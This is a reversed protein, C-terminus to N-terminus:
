EVERATSDTEVRKVMPALICAVLALCGAFMFAWSAGQATAAAEDLGNAAGTATGRTLFVVLFATGTAGALQQLTNLIASGHGYLNGPLSSLATTMLPTMLLGVGVAFCIHLAIVMWVASNEDLLSLCWVAATMLLVGPILLPRPGVADYARGIFPSILGQMLGGPMVVLGATLATVGLSTQLYIPLVTAAGLLLGFSVLLGAVAMTYNRIKFPRLDLLARGAKALSQQRKVFIVLSVAGVVSIIIQLMGDGALITEISSLGFVLGGFALVSLVVSLFDLPTERNEGVNRLKILGAIGILAVLPVMVWFIFHWTFTNLIFGGVTPGLAPAVSIAVSIIGMVSGRRQAPVLVMTMTMLLPIVLATGAAQIIRGLLLIIFSPSIAAVVTGTIFLVVASLFVQRSTFRELIYGTTPIVVAMTLLFGTILWQASTAPIGFEAMIAPLAVSLSTENLIMVMAALVLVGLNIITEGTMKKAAPNSKEAPNNGEPHAPTSAM